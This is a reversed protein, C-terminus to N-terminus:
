HGCAENESKEQEYRHLGKLRAATRPTQGSGGMGARLRGSAALKMIVSRTHKPLEGAVNM